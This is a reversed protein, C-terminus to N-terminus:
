KAVPVVVDRSAELPRRFADYLIRAQVEDLKRGKRWLPDTMLAGAM